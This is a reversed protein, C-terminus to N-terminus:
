DRVALREISHRRGVNELSNIERSNVIFVNQNSSEAKPPVVPKKVEEEIIKHYNNKPPHPLNEKGVILRRNASEHQPERSVIISSSIGLKGSPKQGSNKM